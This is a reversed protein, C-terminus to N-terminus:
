GGDKGDARMLMRESSPAGGSGASQVSVSDDTVISPTSPMGGVAGTGRSRTREARGGRERTIRTAFAKIEEETKFDLINTLCEQSIQVAKTACDNELTHFQTLSDRLHNLRSEDVAQLREFIFPAQSEWDAVTKEVQSAVESVKAVNARAGRKKIKESKEEAADVQKALATLNAEITKM